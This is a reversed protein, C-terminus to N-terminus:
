RYYVWYLQDPIFGPCGPQRHPRNPKRDTLDPVPLYILKPVHDFTFDGNKLHWQCRGLIRPVILIDANEQPITELEVETMGNKYIFFSSPKEYFVEKAGAENMAMIPYSKLYNRLESFQSAFRAYYDGRLNLVRQYPLLLMSYIDAMGKRIAEPEDHNASVGKAETITPKSRRQFSGYLSKLARLKSKRTTRITSRTASEDSIFAGLTEVYMGMMMTLSAENQSMPPPAVMKVQPAATDFKLDQAYSNSVSILSLAMLLMRSAIHLVTM